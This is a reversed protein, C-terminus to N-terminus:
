RAEKAHLDLARQVFADAAGLYGEPALAREIEEATLEVAPDAALAEAFTHGEERARRAAAEVLRAAEPAGVKEALVVKVHEAMVLGGTADLNARM